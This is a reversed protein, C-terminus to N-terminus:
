RDARGHRSVDQIKFGMRGNCGRQQNSRKGGAVVMLEPACSWISSVQLAKRAKVKLERSFKDLHSLQSELYRVEQAAARNEAELKLVQFSDAGLMDVMSLVKDTADVFRLDALVHQKMLTAQKKTEELFKQNGSSLKKRLANFQVM